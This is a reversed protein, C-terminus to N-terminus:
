SAGPGSRLAVYGYVKAAESFDTGVTFGQGDAGDYDSLGDAANTAVAAAIDISEGNPVITRFRTGIIDRDTVNTILLFDPIFGIVINQAAGNGTFTGVVVSPIM